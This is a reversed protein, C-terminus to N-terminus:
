GHDARMLTTLHLVFTLFHEGAVAVTPLKVLIFPHTYVLSTDAHLSDGYRNCFPPQPRQDAGLLATAM